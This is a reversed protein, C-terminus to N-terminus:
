GLIAALHAQITENSVAPDRDKTRQGIRGLYANGAARSQDSSSFLAYLKAEVPHMSSTRTLPQGIGALQVGGKHQTGALILKEVLGPEDLVIQRAVAAGLSYGLLNV